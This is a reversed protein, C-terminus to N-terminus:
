EESLNFFDCLFRDPKEYIVFGIRSSDIENKPLDDKIGERSASGAKM